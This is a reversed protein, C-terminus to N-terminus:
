QLPEKVVWRGTRNNGDRGILKGNMEKFYRKVTRIDVNLIDAIESQTRTGDEQILQLIGNTIPNTVNNQRYSIITNTHKTNIKQIDGRTVMRELTRESIKIGNNLLIQVNEKYTKYPNFYKQIEKTRLYREIYNVAQMVSVGQESWYPKNVKYRPHKTQSIPYRHTLSYKAKEILVENSIKNDYNYYYREREVRLGFLLCEISINPNNALMVQATMFIHTKRNDGSSWKFMKGGKCKHYITYYPEPFLYFMESSDLIHPPCLSYKYEQYYTDKYKSLFDNFSLHYFDNLFSSDIDTSASVTTISSHSTQLIESSVFESFEATSYIYDSTYDEAFPKTGFYCQIANRNDLADFNNAVNIAEYLENFRKEGIIQRNFVYGLRFRNGKIGDSFTTYAFTPKYPLRSIYDQLCDESDDIDYFLTSSSIYKDRNKDKIHFSGDPNSSSYLGCFVKGNKALQILTEVSVEQPKFVLSSMRKDSKDNKDPKSYVNQESVSIKFRFDIAPM